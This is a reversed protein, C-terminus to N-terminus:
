PAAGFKVHLTRPTEVARNVSAVAFNHVTRKVAALITFTSGFAAASAESVVTSQVAAIIDAAWVHATPM